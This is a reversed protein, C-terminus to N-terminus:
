EYGILDCANEMGVRPIRDVNVHMSMGLRTPGVKANIDNSAKPIYM